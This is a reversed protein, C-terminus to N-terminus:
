QKHLQTSINTNNAITYNTEQNLYFKIIGNEIIISLKFYLKRSNLMKVYIM